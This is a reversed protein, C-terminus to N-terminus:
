GRVELQDGVHRAPEQRDPRLIRAAHDALQLHGFQEGAEAAPRGGIDIGEYLRQAVRM